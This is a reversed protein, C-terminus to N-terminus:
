RSIGRAPTQVERGEGKALSEAQCSTVAIHGDTGISLRAEYPDGNRRYLTFSPAETKEASAQVVKCVDDATFERGWFRKPFRVQPFAASYFCNKSELIPQHSVPCVTQTATKKFAFQEAIEFKGRENQIVEFAMEYPNGDKDLFTMQPGPKGALGAKLIKLWEEPMIKRNRTEGYMVLGPFGKAVYYASNNSAMRM